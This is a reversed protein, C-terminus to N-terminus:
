KNGYSMYGKKSLDINPQAPQTNQNQQPQNTQNQIDQKQQVPKEAVNPITINKSMFDNFTTNKDVTKGNILIDKKANGLNGNKVIWEAKADNSQGEYKQLRGMSSLFDAIYQPSANEDPFPKSFIAVDKDTAPGAPLMSLVASNKIRLYENKLRTVEDQNGILKAVEEKAKGVLGYQDVIGQFKNALNDYQTSLSKNNTSAVVTNNLLTETSPNLKIEEFEGSKIKQQFEAMKLASEQLVNNTDANTKVIDAQAKKTDVLIKNINANDVNIGSYSKQIDAKIKAMDLPAKEKEINTKVIGEYTDKFKDPYISAMFMNSFELAGKPNTDITNLINDMNTASKTDGSNTYAEKEKTLIQKALDTNGSNLAGSVQAAIGFDNQKKAENVTKYSASLADALSPYQVGFNAYDEATKNPKAFFNTLDEKAKIAQERARSQESMQGIAAATQLGQSFNQLFNQQPMQAMYNIPEM